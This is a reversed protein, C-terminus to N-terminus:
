HMRKDIIAVILLRSRLTEAYTCINGKTLLGVVAMHSECKVFASKPMLRHLGDGSSAGKREVAVSSAGFFHIVLLHEALSQGFELCEVVAVLTIEAIPCSPVAISAPQPSAIAM